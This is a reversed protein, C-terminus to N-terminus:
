RSTLVKFLVLQLLLIEGKFGKGGERTKKEGKTNNRRKESIVGISM